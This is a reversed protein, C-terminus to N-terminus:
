IVINPCDNRVKATTYTEIIKHPVRDRVRDGDDSRESVGGGAAEVPILDDM